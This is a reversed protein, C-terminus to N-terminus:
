HPTTVCLITVGWDWGSKGHGGTTSSTKSQDFKQGHDGDDTDQCAHKERSDRADTLAGTLSRSRGGKGLPGTTDGTVLLNVTVIRIQNM